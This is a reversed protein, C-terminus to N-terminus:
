IPEIHRRASAPEQPKQVTRRIRFNFDVDRGETIVEFGAM